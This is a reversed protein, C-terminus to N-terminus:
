YVDDFFKIIERYRIYYLAEEFSDFYMLCVTADNSNRGIVNYGKKSTQIRYNNFQSNWEYVSRGDFGSWVDQSFGPINKSNITSM